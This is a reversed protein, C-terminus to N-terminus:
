IVCCLLKGRLKGWWGSSYPNILFTGSVSVVFETPLMVFGKFPPTFHMAFTCNKDPFVVKNISVTGFLYLNSM